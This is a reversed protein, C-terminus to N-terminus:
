KQIANRIEKMFSVETKGDLDHMLKDERPTQPHVTGDGLRFLGQSGGVMTFTGDSKNKLFFVYKGGTEPAKWYDPMRVEASGGNGFNVYGGPERVTLDAGAGVAGKLVTQVKLRYDTIVLAESPQLLQSVNSEVTAMVITQSGAALAKLDTFKKLNRPQATVSVRGDTQARVRLSKSPNSAVRASRGKVLAIAGVAVVLVAIAEVILYRRM